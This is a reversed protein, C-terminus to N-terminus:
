QVKVATGTRGCLSNVTSGDSRNFVETDPVTDGLILVGGSQGIVGHVEVAFTGTTGAGFGALTTSNCTLQQSFSHDNNVAYTLNCNVDAQEVPFQGGGTANPNVRLNQQVQNGTGDGNYHLFGAVSISNTHGAGIRALNSNFGNPDVAAACNVIASFAYDGRLHNPHSHALVHPAVAMALVFVLSSVEIRCRTVRQM